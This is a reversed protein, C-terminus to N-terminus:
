ISWLNGQRTGMGCSQAGSGRSDPAMVRVAPLQSGVMSNGGGPMSSQTIWPHSNLEHSRQFPQLFPRAMMLSPNLFFPSHLTSAPPWHQVHAVAEASLRARTGAMQPEDSPVASGSGGASACGRGSIGGERRARREAQVCKNELKKAARAEKRTRVQLDKEEKEKKHQEKTAEREVAQQRAEVQHGEQHAKQQALLHECGETYAQSTM